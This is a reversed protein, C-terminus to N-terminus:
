NAKQERLKKRVHQRRKRRSSSGCKIFESFAAYASEVSATKCCTMINCRNGAMCAHARPFTLCVPLSLLLFPSSLHYAFSLLLLPLSSHQLVAAAPTPFRLRTSIGPRCCQLADACRAHPRAGEGGAGAINCRRVAGQREQRQDGRAAWGGGCFGFGARFPTRCIASLCCTLASTCSPDCRGRSSAM